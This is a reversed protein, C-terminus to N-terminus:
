RYSRVLWIVCVDFDVLLIKSEKEMYGLVDYIGNLHSVIIVEQGIYYKLCKNTSYIFIDDYWIGNNIRDTVENVLVFSDDVNAAESNYSLIYYGDEYSLCVFHGTKSWYM